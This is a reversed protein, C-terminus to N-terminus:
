WTGPAGHLQQVLTPQEANHKRLQRRAFAHLLTAIVRVIHEPVRQQRQVGRRIVEQGPERGQEVVHPLRGRGRGVTREGPVLRDPGVQGGAGEASQAERDLLDLHHGPQDLQM